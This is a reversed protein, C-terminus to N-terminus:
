DVSVCEFAFVYSREPLNNIVKTEYVELPNFKQSTLTDSMELIGTKKVVKLKNKNLLAEMEDPTYEYKHDEDIYKDPMQIKTIDRNPTDFIFKGEERLHERIWKFVLELKDVQIHEITQGMYILDFKKENLEEYDYINEVFGHVYQLTGWDFHYDKDQPFKPKGWYQKDEPLDFITIETPRHQYGLEILAGMAINPSSGGIDLIYEFRELASCWSQRGQHLMDSFPIKYHMIFEPSNWLNDLLEKQTFTKAEIKQRWYSLGVDDIKRQLLVLYALKVYDEESINKPDVLTLNDLTEVRNLQKPFLQVNSFKRSFRTRLKDFIVTLRM